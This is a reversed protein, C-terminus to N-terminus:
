EFILELFNIKAIDILEKSVDVGIYEIDKGELMEYFRGNGCGLDLIREKGKVYDDFLFRMEEWAKVRARAFQGSM